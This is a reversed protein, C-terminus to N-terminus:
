KLYVENQLSKLWATIVKANPDLNYSSWDGEEALKIANYVKETESFQYATYTYAGMDAGNQIRKSFSEKKLDGILASYKTLETTAIQKKTSTALALNEKIQVETLQGKLEDSLYRPKGNQLKVTGDSKVYFVSAQEGWAFNIYSVEFLVEQSNAKPAVIAEEKECTLSLFVLGVFPILKLIKNRKM